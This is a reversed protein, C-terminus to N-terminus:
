RRHGRVSAAREARPPIDACARSAPRASGPVSGAPTNPRLYVRQRTFGGPPAMQRSGFVPPRGLLASREHPARETFEIHGAPSLNRCTRASDLCREATSQGRREAGSAAAIGDAGRRLSVFMHELYGYCPNAGQHRKHIVDEGVRLRGGCRVRMAARHPDFPITAWPGDRRAWGM